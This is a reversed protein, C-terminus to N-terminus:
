ESSRREEAFPLSPRRSPGKLDIRYSNRVVRDLISDCVTLDAFVEPWDKVPLQSSIGLSKQHRWRDDIVELLDQSVEVDIQRIGFDDLILLDPKGLDNLIKNYSGDGRGIALDTLLRTTRYSRVSMGLMCSARGFASLMFTKGAGTPGTVILNHGEKVWECTSLSEIDSKKINRVPDYDIDELLASPDSLCANKVLRKLRAEHRNNVQAAVIQAFRDDFSLQQSSPLECQRQYEAKMSNLRLETLQEMTQYRM